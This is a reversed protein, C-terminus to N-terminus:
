KNPWNPIIKKMMLNEHFDKMIEITESLKWMLHLLYFVENAEVPIDNLIKIAAELGYLQMKGWLKCSGCEICDLVLDASLFISKDYKIDLFAPKQPIFSKVARKILDLKENIPENDIVKLCRASGVEFLQTAAFVLKYLYLFNNKYNDRYANNYLDESSLYNGDIKTHYKAAHTTVSFHIGSILHADFSFLEELKKWIAGSGAKYGTYDQVTLKLDTYTMNKPVMKRVCHSSKIADGDVFDEDRLEYHSKLQGPMQALVMKDLSSPKKCDISTCFLLIDGENCKRSLDIYNHSFTETNILDYLVPYLKSNMAKELYFENNISCHIIGCFLIM